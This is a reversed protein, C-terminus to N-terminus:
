VLLIILSGNATLRNCGNKYMQRNSTPHGKLSEFVLYRSLHPFLLATQQCSRVTADSPIKWSTQSPVWQPGTAFCLYASASHLCQKCIKIASVILIQFKRVIWRIRPWYTEHRASLSMKPVQRRALAERRWQILLIKTLDGTSVLFCPGVVQGPQAYGGASRTV